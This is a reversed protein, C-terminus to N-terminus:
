FSTSITAVINGESGDKEHGGTASDYDM